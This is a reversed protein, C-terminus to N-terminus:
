LTIKFCKHIKKDKFDEPITKFTIDEVNYKNCIEKDIKFNRYNNSFYLTGEKKLHKITNNILDVQDRFVDFTSDMKKSNSFTPPDLFIIDYKTDSTNKIFETASENIFDHNNSNINNIEFNEKGWNLYNNNLDVNTTLAGSKAAYVSISCTYCFLNLLKQDKQIEHSIIKRIPRHDLFLGVDLYTEFDILFKLDSEKIIVKEKKNYVKSYQENGSQKMRRKLHIEFEPFLNKVANITLDFHEAKTKDKIPDSKDHIVIHKGYIDIIFPYEPIDREYLRFAELNNRSAWKRKHKYLKNLKNEIM